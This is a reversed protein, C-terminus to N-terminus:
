REFRSRILPGPPSGASPTSPPHHNAYWTRMVRQVCPAGLPPPAEGKWRHVQFYWILLHFFSPLIFQKEIFVFKNIGLSRGILLNTWRNIQCVSYMLLPLDLQGPFKPDFCTRYLPLSHHFCVWFSFLSTTLVKSDSPSFVFSFSLPPYM